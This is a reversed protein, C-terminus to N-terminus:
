AGAPDRERAHGFHLLIKGVGHAFYHRWRRRLSGSKDPTSWQGARKSFLSVALLGDGALRDRSDPRPALRRQGGPVVANRATGHPCHFGRGGLGNIRRDIHEPLAVGARRTPRFAFGVLALAGEVVLHGASKGNWEDAGCGKM